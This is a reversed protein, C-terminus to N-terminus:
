LPKFSIQLAIIVTHIVKHITISHPSFKSAGRPPNTAISKKNSISNVTNMNVGNTIAKNPIKNKVIRNIELELFMVLGQQITTIALTIHINSM